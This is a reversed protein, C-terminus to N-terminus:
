RPCIYLIHVNSMLLSNFEMSQASVQKGGGFLCFDPEWISTQIHTPRFVLVLALEIKEVMHESM